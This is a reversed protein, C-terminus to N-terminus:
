RHKWREDHTEKIRERFRVFLIGIALLGSTLCLALFVGPRQAGFLFVNGLAYQVGSLLTVTFLIAFVAHTILYSGVAFCLWSAVILWSNESVGWLLLGLLLLGSGLYRQSNGQVNNQDNDRDKM